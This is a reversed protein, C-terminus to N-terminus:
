YHGLSLAVVDPDDRNRGAVVALVAAPLFGLGAVATSAARSARNMLGNASATLRRGGVGVTVAAAGCLSLVLVTSTDPWGMGRWIGAGVGGLLLLVVSPSAIVAVVGISRM